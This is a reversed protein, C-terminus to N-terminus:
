DNTTNVPVINRMSKRGVIARGGIGHFHSMPNIRDCATTAFRVQSVGM